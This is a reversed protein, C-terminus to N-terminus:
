AIENPLHDGYVVSIYVFDDSGDELFEGNQTEPVTNKSSSHEYEGSV